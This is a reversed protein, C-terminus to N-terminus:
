YGCAQLLDSTRGEVSVVTSATDVLRVGGAVAVGARILQPSVEQGGTGAAVMGVGVLQGFAM